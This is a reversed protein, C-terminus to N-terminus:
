RNRGTNARQQEADDNSSTIQLDSDDYTAGSSLLLEVVKTHGKESAMQLATRGEYRFRIDAGRLLLLEVV